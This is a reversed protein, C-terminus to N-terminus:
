GKGGILMIGTVTPRRLQKQLVESFVGELCKPSYRYSSLGPLITTGARVYSGLPNQLPTEV